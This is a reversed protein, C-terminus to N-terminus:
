HRQKKFIKKVKPKLDLISIINSGGEGGLIVTPCLEWPFQIHKGAEELISEGYDPKMMQNTACNFGGCPIM